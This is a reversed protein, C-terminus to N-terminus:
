PVINNAHPYGLFGESEAEEILGILCQKSNDQQLRRRFDLVRFERELLRQRKEQTKAQGAKLLAPFFAVGTNRRQVFPGETVNCAAYWCYNNTNTFNLPFTEGLDVLDEVMNRIVAFVCSRPDKRAKELAKKNKKRIHDNPFDSHIWVEHFGPKIAILESYASTAQASETVKIFKTIFTLDAVEESFRLLKRDELTIGLGRWFEDNPIKKKTPGQYVTKGSLAQFANNWEASIAALPAECMTKSQALAKLYKWRLVNFIREVEMYPTVWQGIRPEQPPSPDPVMRGNGDVLFLGPAEAEANYVIRMVGSRALCKKEALLYCQSIVPANTM